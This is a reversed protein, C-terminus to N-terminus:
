DMPCQLESCQDTHLHGTSIGMTQLQANTPLRYDDAVDYNVEYGMDQLAGITVRSLPNIGGNLFGTMLENGFLTERWHSDRTGTGGTNAVPVPLPRGAGTLEGYERMANAGIFIPNATGAGRLLGMLQWLTGFGLVHGMEHVIVNILSGNRELQALDASDFSMIGTAPLNSGRRFARPGAQGLIRGTGDIEVGEADIRVDDIRDGGVLVDPLDGTIIESWKAAAQEFVTQQSPTLGGIFRVDINFKSQPVPNSTDFELQWANLRGGDFFARDAIELTWRGNADLGDFFSLSQEPRFVGRFPAQGVQIRTAAEDDFRTETFNDRFGGERGVLLVRRGNPGILSIELDSDFTHQIDILVNLDRIAGQVGSVNLVSHITNPAGPSIIEPTNNRFEHRM